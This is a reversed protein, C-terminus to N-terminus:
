VLSGLRRRQSCIRQQVRGGTIAHFEPPHLVSKDRIRRLTGLTFDGASIVSMDAVHLLFAAVATNAGSIFGGTFENQNAVQTMTPAPLYSRPHGGRYSSALTRWSIVVACNAPLPSGTADGSTSHIGTGRVVSEDDVWYTAECSVYAASTSILPSLDDGWTTIFTLAFADMQSPTPTGSGSVHGWLVNVVPDLGNGGICEIKITRPPPPPLKTVHSHIYM